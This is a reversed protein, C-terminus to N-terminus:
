CKLVKRVKSRFVCSYVLFYGKLAQSLLKVWPRITLDKQMYPVRLHLHMYEKLM